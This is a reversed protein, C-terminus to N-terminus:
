KRELRSYRLLGKFLVGLSRIGGFGLGDGLGFASLIKTSVFVLKVGGNSLNPVTIQRGSLAETISSGNDGCGTVSM